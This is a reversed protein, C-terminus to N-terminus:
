ARAVQNGVHGTDEDPLGLVAGAEAARRHHQGLPRRDRRDIDAAARGAAALGFQEIGGGQDLQTSAITSDPPEAKPSSAAPPTISQSAWCPRPNGTRSIRTGITGAAIRNSRPM